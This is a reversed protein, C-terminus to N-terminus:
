RGLQSPLTQNCVGQWWPAICFHPLACSAGIPFTANSDTAELFKIAPILHSLCKDLWGVFSPAEKKLVNDTSKKKRSSCTFYIRQTHSVNWRIRWIVGGSRSLSKSITFGMQSRKRLSEMQQRTFSTKLFHLDLLTVNSTFDILPNWITFWLRSVIKDVMCTRQTLYSVM